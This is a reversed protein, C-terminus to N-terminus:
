LKLSKLFSMTKENVESSRIDDYKAGLVEGFKAINIFYMINNTYLVGHQMLGDILAKGMTTKGIRSDIKECYRALEGKSHSRFMLIMRRLKGFAEYLQKDTSGTGYPKRCYDKFPFYVQAETIMLFKNNSQPTRFFLTPATGDACQAYFQDCEWVINGQNTSPTSLLLDKSEVRLESCHISVPAQIDTKRESILVKVPADINLASIPSPVYLTDDDNMTFTFEYEYDVEERGFSLYCKRPEQEDDDAVVETTGIDRPHDLTKFSSYLYPFFRCDINEKNAGKVSAYIDLLLYSCSGTKNLYSLVDEKCDAKDILMAILYSEFVINQMKKENGKFFPHHKIWEKMKENYKEDFQQENAVNFVIDKKLFAALIRRCQEEEDGAIKYIEQKFQESRGNEFVQPLVEEFIKNRERNLIRKVIDILLDIKQKKSNKLDDLLSHFDQKENLLNSISQLVPAYGIFREFLKKNLESESKFFGGIQNVIYDRVERYQKDFREVYNPNMQNDIFDLAKNITFPEIELLSTNIGNEELIMSADEMVGPRGLIVFPLGKAGRAFFAVDKLFAEFGEQTVKISAEDLGDIILSCLGSKLGSHYRFVDDEEVDKMLLGGITNAGVADFSGLDFIPIGLKYSIYQSMATKGTAGPASILVVQANELPTIGQVTEIQSMPPQVYKAMKKDEDDKKYYFAKFEKIHIHPREDKSEYGLRGMLKHLSVSYNHEKNAEQIMMNKFTNYRVNLEDNSKLIYGFLLHLRSQSYGDSLNAVPSPDGEKNWKNVQYIYEEELPDIREVSFRQGNVYVFAEFPNSTAKWNLREELTGNILIEILSNM